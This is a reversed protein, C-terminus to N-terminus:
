ENMKMRGTKDPPRNEQKAKLLVVNEIGTTHPFMDVPQIFTARYGGKCLQVLDRQLTEIGCSIYVIRDPRLKLASRLFEASAGARPPDMMLVDCHEKEAAMRQMFRGADDNCFRINKLGNLRANMVADRCAARNLEVGAVDAGRKACLIGITGTGCYADIVVDRDALGAADVACAYLKETQEPNVQYFSAPSIRFRCGCIMDEIYGDGFLTVSRPGLTLPIGDPCINQVITTLEPHAKRLAGVLRNQAPLMPSATVLVLMVQGTAPSTRILTHRLVGAGTRLDYPQIRLDHMLKKLTSVIPAAKRDELMCDDVATMRRSHSQYIGSLIRGRGDAAYLNQVKNRYHYPSQMALIPSVPAFESLMREAKQQKRAIQEAYPEDLQCGGCRKFCRCRKEGTQPDTVIHKAM